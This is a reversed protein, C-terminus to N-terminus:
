PAPHSAVQVPAPSPAAYLREETTVTAQRCGTDPAEGLPASHLRRMLEPRPRPDPASSPM